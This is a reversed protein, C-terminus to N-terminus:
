INFRGKVKLHRSKNRKFSNYDSYKRPAGIFVLESEVKEYADNHTVCGNQLHWYFRRFYGDTTLIKTKIRM